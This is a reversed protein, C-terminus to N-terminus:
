KDNKLDKRNKFKKNNKSQRAITLLIEKQEEVSQKKKPIIEGGWDPMFDLAKTEKPKHGKKCYVVNAINTILSALRAMRFDDRWTGVPDIKDYAEWESLQESTLSDLLFDPHM